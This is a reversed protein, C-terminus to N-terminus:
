SNLDVVKTGKRVLKDVPLNIIEDHIEAIDIIGQQALYKIFATESVLTSNYADMHRRQLALKGREGGIYHLEREIESKQMYLENQRIALKSDEERNAKMKKAKVEASLKLRGNIASIYGEPAEHTTESM